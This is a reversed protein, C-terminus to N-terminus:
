VAQTVQHLGSGDPHLEWIAVQVGGDGSGTAMSFAIWRGDPSWAPSEITPTPTAIRHVNSGDANVEYLEDTQCDGGCATTRTFAVQTGNPSWNGMADVVNDAPFTIQTEYTGNPNIVFLTSNSQDA